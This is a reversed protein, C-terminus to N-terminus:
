KITVMIESLENIEHQKMDKCQRLISEIIYKLQYVFTGKKDELYNNKIMHHLFKIATVQKSILTDILRKTNCKQIISEISRIEKVKAEFSDVYKGKIFLFFSYANWFSDYESIYSSINDMTTIIKDLYCLGNKSPIITPKDKVIHDSIYDFIWPQIQKVQHLKCLMSLSLCFSDIDNQLISLKLYTDWYKWENNNDKVAENICIKAAKYTGRKMYLYALNGYSKSSNENTMSIMRTFAKIAEDFNEIKMYSYGLIFWIDPCLPSIELAKKLYECCEKYMEKNYYYKGIFIAAKAYKFKSLNWAEVYYNLSNNRDILGYLCLLCPTKKKKLLDDLLEKAEEKRDAEILCTIAEEWLKLDKFLNFASVVSGTKIMVNGIEKKLEWITPYYVDYMFRLREAGEPKMDYCEKLLENLQAAARDVTKLRFTEYKCKFWLFCSYLLWNQNKKQLLNNRKNTSRREDFNMESSVDYCKLCRSIVASLKEFKIEDYHPNFKILSFCFNILTIQEQFFLVKFCNNQSDVFNPEELIDTDPDLDKLKWTVKANPDELCQETKDNKKPPIEMRINNVDEKKEAKLICEDKITNKADYVQENRFSSCIIQGKFKADDNKRSLEGTCTDDANSNKSDEGKKNKGDINQERCNNTINNLEDNFKNTCNTGEKKAGNNKSTRKEEEEVDTCNEESLIPEENMNQTEIEERKAKMEQVAILDEEVEVYVEKEQNEKERKNLKQEDISKNNDIIRYDSRLIDYESLPEIEKLVTSTNDEEEGSKAKLVLITAPTKQYKRKIGLRGTFFYHFKSMDSLVNLLKQYGRTYNYYTLYVSFNSLVYIKFKESLHSEHFTDCYKANKVDNVYKIDQNLCDVIDAVKCLITEQEIIEFDTPLLNIKKFIHIPKDIIHIKLSYFYDNYSSTFLRQWIFCIRAKWLYKSKIFYDCNLNDYCKEEKMDNTVAEDGMYKTTSKINVDARSGYVQDEKINNTNNANNINKESFNYEDLSLFPLDEKCFNNVLGLLIISLCFSNILECHEYIYVGELSLFDLSSNFFNEKKIQLAEIFKKFYNDENYRQTNKLTVIHIDYKLPPGTWNYQTFINLFIFSCLLIKVEFLFTFCLYMFITLEKSETKREIHKKYKIKERESRVYEFLEKKVQNISVIHQNEFVDLVFKFINYVWPNTICRKHKGCKALKLLIFLNKIEDLLEKLLEKQNLKKSIEEGVLDKYLAELSTVIQKETKEYIDENEYNLYILEEIFWLVKRLNEM